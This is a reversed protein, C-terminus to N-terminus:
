HHNELVAGALYLSGAILILADEEQVAAVAAAPTAHATASLGAQQAATVLAEPTLANENGEIPVAHIHLARDPGEALGHALGQALAALYKDHAKNSLMALVIHLTGSQGSLWAALSRAAAENHGGDLYLRAAPLRAALATVMPGRSLKQLRAPWRVTQLGTAMATDSVGLYEALALATAANDIQHAGILRPVPLDLLGTDHAYLLRGDQVQPHFDQGACILPTGRRAALTELHAQAEPEQPAIICSVGPKL